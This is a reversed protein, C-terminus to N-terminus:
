RSGTSPDTLSFWPCAYGTKFGSAARNEAQGASARFTRCQADVQGAEGRRAIIVTKFGLLCQSLNLLCGHRYGRHLGM